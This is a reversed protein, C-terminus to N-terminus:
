PHESLAERLVPAFPRARSFASDLFTSVARDDGARILARGATAVHEDRDASRLARLLDGARSLDGCSVEPAHHALWAADHRALAAFLRELRGSAVIDPDTSGAAVRLHALVAPAPTDTAQASLTLAPSEPTSLDRLPCPFLTTSGVRDALALVAESGPAHPWWRFFLLAAGVDQPRESELADAIAHALSVSEPLGRLRHYVRGLWSAPLERWGVMSELPVQGDLVGRLLAAWDTDHDLTRGEVVVPLKPLPHGGCAWPLQPDRVDRDSDLALRRETEKFTTCACFYRRALHGAAATQVPEGCAACVLHNCGFVDGVGHAWHDAPDVPIPAESVLWGGDPCYSLDPRDSVDPCYSLGPRLPLDPTESLDLVGPIYKM